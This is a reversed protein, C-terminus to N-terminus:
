ESRRGGKVMFPTGGSLRRLFTFAWVPPIMRQEASPMGWGLLLPRPVGVTTIM